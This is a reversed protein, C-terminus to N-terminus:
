YCTCFKERAKPASEKFSVIAERGSPQGEGLRPISGGRNSTRLKKSGLSIMQFKVAIHSLLFVHSFRPVKEMFLWVLATVVVTCTFCNKLYVKVPGLCNQAWPGLLSLHPGPFLFIEFVCFCLHFLSKIVELLYLKHLFAVRIETGPGLISTDSDVSSCLCSM